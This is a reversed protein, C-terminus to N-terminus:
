ETTLTSKRKKRSAAGPRLPRPEFGWFLPPQVPADAPRDGDRGNGRAAELVKGWYEELGLLALIRRGWDGMLFAWADDANDGGDQVDLIAQRIVLAWIQEVADLRKDLRLKTKKSRQSLVCVGPM